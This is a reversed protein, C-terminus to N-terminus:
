TLRDSPADGRRAALRYCPYALLALLTLGTPLAVSGHEAFGGILAGLAGPVLGPASLITGGIREFRPMRLSEYLVFAGFLILGISAPLDSRPM